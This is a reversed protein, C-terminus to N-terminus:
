RDWGELCLSRRSRLILTSAEGAIQALPLIARREEQSTAGLGLFGGFAADLAPRAGPLFRHHAAIEGGQGHEGLPFGLTL